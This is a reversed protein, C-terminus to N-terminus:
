MLEGLIEALAARKEMGEIKFNNMKYSPNLARNLTKSRLESHDGEGMGEFGSSHGGNILCAKCKIQM